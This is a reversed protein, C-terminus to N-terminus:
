EIRGQFACGAGGACVQQSALVPRGNRQMREVFSALHHGGARMTETDVPYMGAEDGPAGPNLPGIPRALHERRFAVHGLDILGLAVPIVALDLLTLVLGTRCSVSHGPSRDQHTANNLYGRPNWGPVVM